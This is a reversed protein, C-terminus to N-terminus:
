TYFQKLHFKSVVGSQEKSDDFTNTKSKLNDEFM